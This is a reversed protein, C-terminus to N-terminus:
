ADLVSSRRSRRFVARRNAVWILNAVHRCRGTDVPTQLGAPTQAPCTWTPRGRGDPVPLRRGLKAGHFRHGQTSSFQVVGVQRSAGFHDGECSELHRNLIGAEFKFMFRHAGCRAHKVDAVHAFEHDFTWIGQRENLPDTGVVRGFKHVAPATHM